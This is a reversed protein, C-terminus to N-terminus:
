ASPLASRESISPPPDCIRARNFGTLVSSLLVLVAVPIAPSTWLPVAWANQVREASVFFSALTLGLSALWPWFVILGSILRTARMIPHKTWLSRRHRAILLVAPLLLVQNYPATMPVVVVTAALVLSSVLAFVPTDAPAHRMRWCVAALMILIFVSFLLGWGPTTLVLLVSKPKNLYERYAVVAKGFQPIWGPMLYESGALLAAM